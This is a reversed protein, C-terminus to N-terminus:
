IIKKPLKKIPNCEIYTWFYIYLKIWLVDEFFYIFEHEFCFLNKKSFIKKSYHFILYNSLILFLQIWINFHIVKYTDRNYLRTCIKYLSQILCFHKQIIYLTILMIILLKIKDKKKLKKKHTRFYRTILLFLYFFFILM